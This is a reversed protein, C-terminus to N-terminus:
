TIKVLVADATRRRMAVVTEGVLYAVPDGSPHCFLCEVEAGPAVGLAGLRAPLAGGVAGIIHATEGVTM